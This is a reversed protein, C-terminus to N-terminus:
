LARGLDLFSSIFYSELRVGLSELYEQQLLPKYPEIRIGCWFAPNWILFYIRPIPSVLDECRFLLPNRGDVIQVIVDSSLSYSTM